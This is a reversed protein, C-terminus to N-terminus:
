HVARLGRIVSCVGGFGPNTAENISASRYTMQNPELADNLYRAGHFRDAEDEAM